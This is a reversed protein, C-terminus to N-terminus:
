EVRAVFGVGRVTHVLRPGGGAETKRRVYSVYTDLNSDLTPSSFGWVETMLSSREVVAGDAALLVQLLAFETKTLMVQADGRTVQHRASDLTLDGLKYIDTGEIHGARRLLARVRALLETLDFPKPLYDDAGADLGAVRDGVEGRATLVLIPLLHGEARLRRAVDLGDIDPLGLDLVILDIVSSGRTPVQMRELADFGTPATEVDYGEFALVRELVQRLSPDDDVVLLTM